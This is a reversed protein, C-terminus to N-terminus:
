HGAFWDYGREAWYDAPREDTFRISGIRKLQKIGYKLTTTLRLPAGHDQTLPEGGISHSLLTQPHMAAAADLGVYYQRDPTELSVYDFSGVRDEYRAALSAFTPGTWHVVESWGEICKFETIQDVQPLAHIDDMTLTDLRQGGPGEIRLIWSDLDIEEDLGVGGNTRLETTEDAPFTPALRDPDYLNEWLAENFELGSRLVAPIRDDLPQTQVWRWGFATAVAAAGGVLFARRSKGRYEDETLSPGSDALERLRTARDDEDTGADTPELDTM